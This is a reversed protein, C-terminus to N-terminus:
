GPKDKIRKGVAERANTRRDNKGEPANSAASCGGKGTHHVRTGPFNERAENLGNGM